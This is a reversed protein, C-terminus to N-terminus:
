RDAMSRGTVSVEFFPAGGPPVNPYPTHRPADHPPTRSSAADRGGRTTMLLYVAVAAFFWGGWQLVAWSARVVTDDDRFTM